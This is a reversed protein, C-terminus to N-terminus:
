YSRRPDQTDSQNHLDRKYPGGANPAFFLTKRGFVKEEHSSPKRGRRTLTEHAGRQSHSSSELGMHPVVPPMVEIMVMGCTM